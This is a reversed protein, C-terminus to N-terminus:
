HMMVRNHHLQNKRMQVGTPHSRSRKMKLEMWPVIKAGSFSVLGAKEISCVLIQNTKKKVFQWQQGKLVLWFNVSEEPLGAILITPSSIHTSIRSIREM